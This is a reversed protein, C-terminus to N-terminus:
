SSVTLQHFFFKEGLPSPLEIEEEKTLLKMLILRGYLQGSDGATIIVNYHVHM